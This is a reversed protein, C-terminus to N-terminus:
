QISRILQNQFAQVSDFLIQKMPAMATRFHEPLVNTASNVNYTSNKRGGNDAKGCLTANWRRNLHLIAGINHFLMHPLIAPHLMNTTNHIYLLLNVQQWAENSSAAISTM